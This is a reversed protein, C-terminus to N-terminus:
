NKSAVKFIFYTLIYALIIELIFILPYLLIVGTNEETPYPILHGFFFSVIENILYWFVITLFSKLISKMIVSM